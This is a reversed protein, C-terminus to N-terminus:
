ASLLVIIYSSAFVVTVTHIANQVIRVARTWLTIQDFTVKIDRGDGDSNYQTIYGARVESSV